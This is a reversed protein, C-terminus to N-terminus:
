LHADKLTRQARIAGGAAITSALLMLATAALLQPTLPSATAGAPRGAFFWPAAQALTAWWATAAATM